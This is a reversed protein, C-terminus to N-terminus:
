HESQIEVFEPLSAGARSLVATLVHRAHVRLEGLPRNRHVREGVVEVEAIASRGHSLFTDILMGIEVGYGDEFRLREAADRTVACEGALPQSIDALEPFFQELLPRAVLETVRGGEQSRGHLPRRYAAKVLKLGPDDILASILGTVYGASFNVVDGDLFVLLEATTAAVAQRMAQGKGPGERGPVVRAGAKLAIAGTGDTSGDDVVLLDDITGDGLLPALCGVISGITGAENRAPICVAVSM